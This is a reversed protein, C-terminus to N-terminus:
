GGSRPQLPKTYDGIPDLCVNGAPGDELPCVPLELMKGQFEIRELREKKLSTGIKRYFPFLDEGVAISMDEVMEDWTERRGPEDAWRTCRVWYWRPYWTPGFRDDLKQFVWWEKTWGPGNGWKARGAETEDETALDLRSGKQRELDLISNCNRNSRERDAPNFLANIKGQFWGAHSEGQNGHPSFGALEGRDNRPGSMTHAFEHGFVSLIALPEYEIVASAKPRGNIAWGGGGGACIVLAYPEEFQKTPLWELVKQAALPINERICKLTAPPQNDAYYVVIGGVNLELEPYIGAGGASAMRGEGGVPAKGAALWVLLDKLGKLKAAKVEASDAKDDPNFAVPSECIAVRGKGFVRQARVAKGTKGALTAQWDPGLQLAAFSRGNAEDSEATVKADYDALMANLSWDDAKEATGPRGVFVLLGGGGEVFAKLAAREKETYVQANLDQQSTVVVNWAPTPWWAFPEMGALPLRIRSPQGPTLVANLTAVSTCTRFGQSRIIGNLGWIVAFQTQHAQDILVNIGTDTAEDATGGAPFEASFEMPLTKGVRWYTEAKRTLAKRRADARRAAEIKAEMEPAMPPVVLCKGELVTRELGPGQWAVALHNGGGGRKHLAQLFYRKGAQLAIAASKQSAQVSWEGPEVYGDVRAILRLNAPSEDTSLWLEGGDDCCIYLVYEGTTPPAVLATCRVGYNDGLSDIQLRTLVRVQDAPQGYKASGTLGSVNDGPVGEWMEHLAGQRVPAAHTTAALALCIAPCWLCSSMSM